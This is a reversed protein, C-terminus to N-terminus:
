FILKNNESKDNVFNFDRKLSKIMKNKEKENKFYDYIFAGTTFVITFTPILILTIIEGNIDINVTNSEAYANNAMSLNLITEFAFISLVNKVSKDIKM